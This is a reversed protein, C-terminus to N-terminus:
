MGGLQDLAAVFTIFTAMAMALVIYADFRLAASGYPHPTM